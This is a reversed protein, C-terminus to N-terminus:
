SRAGVPRGVAEIADLIRQHAGCRCLNREMRVAIEARSPRPNERLLAVAALLMGPTCFGCQFGGHDIFAQQLPHLKGDRALGEITAVDKNAVQKL